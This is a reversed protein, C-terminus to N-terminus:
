YLCAGGRLAYLCVSLTACYMMIIRWVFIWTCYSRVKCNVGWGWWVAKCCNISVTKSLEIEEQKRQTQSSYYSLFINFNLVNILHFLHQQSRTEIFGGIEHEWNPTHPWTKWEGRFSLALTKRKNQQSVFYLTLCSRANIPVTADPADSHPPTM